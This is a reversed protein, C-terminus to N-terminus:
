NEEDAEKRKKEAEEMAEDIERGAKEVANGTEEVAEDIAKGAKEAPGEDRSCGTTWCLTLAILAATLTSTPKM